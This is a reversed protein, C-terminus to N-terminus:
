LKAYISTLVAGDFLADFDFAEAADVDEVPCLLEATQLAFSWSEPLRENITRILVNLREATHPEFDGFYAEIMEIATSEGCGFQKLATTTTM